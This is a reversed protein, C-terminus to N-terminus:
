YELATAEVHFEVRRGAAREFHGVLRKELHDAVYPNPARLILAGDIFGLAVLESCWTNYSASTLEGQLVEQARGWLAAANEVGDLLALDVMPTSVPGSAVGGPDRRGNNTDRDYGKNIRVQLASVLNAYGKLTKTAAGSLGIASREMQDDTIHKEEKWALLAALHPEGKEQWGPIARLVYIYHSPEVPSEESPEKIIQTFNETPKRVSNKVVPTSTETSDVSSDAGQFSKVGLPISYLNVKHPGANREIILEGSQALHRLINQTNRKTMRVKKALNDLSPYAGTGDDHAHDAIALLVLLSAGKQASHFWVHTMVSISM